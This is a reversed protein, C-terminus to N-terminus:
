ESLPENLAKQLQELFLYKLQENRLLSFHTDSIYFLGSLAHFDRRLSDPLSIEHKYFLYHSISAWADQSITRVQVEFSYEKAAGGFTATDKLGAKYHTAMYGFVECGAEDIKNEVDFVNFEQIILDGIKAIDELFLCIIRFGILDHVENFPDNLDKRKIKDLFSDFPKFRDFIYHIKIEKNKIADHIIYKVEEILLKSNQKRIDYEELIKEINYKM